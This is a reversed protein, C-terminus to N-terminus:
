TCKSLLVTVIPKQLASDSPLPQYPACLRQVLGPRESGHAPLPPEELRACRSASAGARRGRRPGLRLQVAAAAERGRIGAAAAWLVSSARSATEGPAPAASLRAPPRSSSFATFSNERRRPTSRTPPAAGPNGARRAGPARPQSGPASGVGAGPVSGAAGPAGDPRLRAGLSTTGRPPARDRPRGRETPPGTRSEM